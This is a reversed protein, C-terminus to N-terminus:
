FLYRIDKFIREKIAKTGKKEKCQLKTRKETSFSKKYRWYKFKENNNTTVFFIKLFFFLIKDKFPM